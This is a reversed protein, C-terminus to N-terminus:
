FVGLRFRKFFFIKFNTPGIVFMDPQWLKFCILYKLNHSPKTVKMFMLKGIVELICQIQKVQLQFVCTVKKEATLLIVIVIIIVIVFKSRLLIVLILLLM